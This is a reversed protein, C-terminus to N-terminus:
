KRWTRMNLKSALWADVSEQKFRWQGGVKFGPLNDNTILRYVTFKDVNLYRAIEEVTRLGVGPASHPNRASEPKAARRTKQKRRQTYLECARELITQLKAMDWPKTVCTAILSSILAASIAENEAYGTTLIRVAGPHIQSARQLFDLGEEDPMRQDALLVAIQGQFERLLRYAAAANDATLITFDDRFVRDFYELSTEDDDVYLVICGQSGDSPEM